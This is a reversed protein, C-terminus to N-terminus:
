QWLCIRQIFERVIEYLKERYPKMNFQTGATGLDVGDTFGSKFMGCEVILTRVFDCSDIIACTCRSQCGAGGSQQLFLPGNATAM